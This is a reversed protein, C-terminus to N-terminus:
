SCGPCPPSEASAESPHSPTAATMILLLGYLIQGVVLLRVFPHQPVVDGYGLTSVTVFSFYVFDLVSLVTDDPQSNVTFCGQHSWYLIYYMGAMGLASNIYAAPLRRLPNLNRSRLFFMSAPFGIFIFVVALRHNLAPKGAFLETGLFAASSLEEAGIVLLALIAILSGYQRLVQKM